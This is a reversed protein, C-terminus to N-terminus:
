DLGGPEVFEDSECRSQWWYGLFAGISILALCISWCVIDNSTNVATFVCLAAAILVVLHLRWYLLLQLLEVPWM